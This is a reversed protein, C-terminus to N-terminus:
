EESGLYVNDNNYDIYNEYGSDFLELVGQNTSNYNDVFLNFRKVDYSFLNIVEEYMTKFADCKQNVNTDVYIVSCKDKLVESNVEISDVINKYEELILIYDDYLISVTDYYLEENMKLTVEERKDSFVIVEDRFDDFSSIITEGIEKTENMDNIINSIYCGLLGVLFVIVVIVSILIVRSKNM